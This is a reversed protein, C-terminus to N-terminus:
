VAEYVRGSHCEIRADSELERRRHLYYEAQFFIVRLLDVTM